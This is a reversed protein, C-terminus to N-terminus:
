NRKKAERRRRRKASQNITQRDLRDRCSHKLGRHEMEKVIEIHQMMTDKENTSDHRRHLNCYAQKLISDTLNEYENVM